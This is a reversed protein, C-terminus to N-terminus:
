PLPAARSETPPSAPGVVRLEPEPVHAAGQRHVRLARLLGAPGAEARGAVVCACQRFQLWIM